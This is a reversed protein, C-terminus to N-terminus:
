DVTIWVWGSVGYRCEIIHSKMTIKMTIKSSSIGVNLLLDLNKPNSWDISQLLLSAISESGLSSVVNSSKGSALFNTHGPLPQSVLISVSGWIFSGMVSRDGM